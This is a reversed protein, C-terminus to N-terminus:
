AISGWTCGWNPQAFHQLYITCWVPYAYTLVPFVLGKDLQLSLVSRMGGTEDLLRNISSLTKLTRINEVHKAFKLNADVTVGLCRKTPVQQLITGNLCVQVPVEGQKVLLMRWSSEAKPPELTASYIKAWIVLFRETGLWQQYWPHM